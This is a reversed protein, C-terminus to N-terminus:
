SGSVPLSPDDSPSNSSSNPSGNSPGNSQQPSTGGGPAPASPAPRNAADDPAGTPATRIEISTADLTTGNSDVRGEAHVVTGTKISSADTSGMDAGGATNGNDAGAKAPPGTRYTTDSSTTIERTFGDRDTVTISSGNVATVTGDIHAPRVDVDVATLAGGSTSAAQGRVHVHEGVHLDSVSLQQRGQHITTASGLTYTRTQGFEDKVTLSSDNAASLRGDSDTASKAPGHGHGQGPGGPGRAAPGGAGPGGAAPGGAAPGGAPGGTAPGGAGHGGAKGQGPAGSTSPSTTASSSSSGTSSTTSSSTTPTTTNAAYAVGAGGVALAGTMTLTLLTRSVPRPRRGSSADSAAPTTTPSM